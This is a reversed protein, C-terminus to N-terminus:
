LQIDPITANVNGRPYDSLDSGNEPIMNFPLLSYIGSYIPVGYIRKPYYGAASVEIDYVSYPLRAASPSLSYSVNPAPLSVIPTIGDSDTLLSNAVYRNDEEAGFIRVVADGVPLAGGATFARVSLTGFSDLM